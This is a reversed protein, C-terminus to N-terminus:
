TQRGTGKCTQMKVESWRLDFIAAEFCMETRKQEFVAKKQRIIKHYNQMELMLVNKGRLKRFFSTKKQKKIEKYSYGRQVANEHPAKQTQQMWTYESWREGETTFSPMQFTFDLTSKMNM